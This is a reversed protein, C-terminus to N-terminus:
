FMPDIRIDKSGNLAARTKQAIDGPRRQAPGAAEVLVFARGKYNLYAEGDQPTRAVGLLYHNPVRVGIVQSEGLNHLIAALLASKTDCDGYGKELARLPTYFGLTQRGRELSSPTRYALGAQVLSIAAEFLWESNGGHESALQTLAAAVSRVNTQNQRVVAPIDVFLRTGKGPETRMRLKHERFYQALRQDFEAQSCNRTQMCAQRLAEIEGDGIGFGRMSARSAAKDIMFSISLPDGALSPFNAQVRYLGEQETGKAYRGSFLSSSLANPVEAFVADPGALLPPSMAAAMTLFAVRFGKLLVRFRRSASM